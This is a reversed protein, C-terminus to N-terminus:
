RLWYRQGSREYHEVLDLNRIWPIKVGRGMTYRGGIWPIKVVTGMTNQGMDM